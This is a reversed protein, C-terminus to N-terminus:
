DDFRRTTRDIGGRNGPKNRNTCHNAYHGKEGCKIQNLNDDTLVSPFYARLSDGYRSVCSKTWTGARLSGVELSYGQGLDTILTQMDAM